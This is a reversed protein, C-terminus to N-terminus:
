RERTYDRSSSDRAAAEDARPGLFSAFSEFDYGSGLVLEARASEADDKEDEREREVDRDTRGLDFPYARADGQWFKMERLCM